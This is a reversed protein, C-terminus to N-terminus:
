GRGPGRRLAVLRDLFSGADGTAELDRMFEDVFGQREVPYIVYFAKGVVNDVPLCGWVHSDVSVNRNDGLVFINGPPVTLKALSYSAAELAYPEYQLAGNVLLMGNRVEVEDGAVAVVRKVLVTDRRVSGDQKSLGKAEYFTPPAKFVVMDGRRPSSWLKSFKEVAIQDNVTLTPYMSLSPIYFPEVVFTRVFFFLAVALALPYSRNLKAFLELLSHKPRPKASEKQEEVKHQACLQGARLRNVSCGHPVAVRLFGLQSLGVADAYENCGSTVTLLNNQITQQQADRGTSRGM